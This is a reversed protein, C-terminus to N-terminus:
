KIKRRNRRPPAVDTEVHVVLVARLDREPGAHASREDEDEGVGPGRPRGGGPEAQPRLKKETTEPWTKKM